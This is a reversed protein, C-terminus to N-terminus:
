SVQGFTKVAFTAFGLSLTHRCVIRGAKHSHKGEFSVRPVWTGEPFLICKCPSLGERSDERDQVKEPWTHIQTFTGRIRPCRPGGRRNSKVKWYVRKDLELNWLQIGPPWPLHHSMVKRALHPSLALIIFIPLLIGASIQRILLWSSVDTPSQLHRTNGPIGGVNM